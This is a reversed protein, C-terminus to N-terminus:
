LSHPPLSGAERNDFQPRWTPLTIEAKTDWGWGVGNGCSGKHLYM